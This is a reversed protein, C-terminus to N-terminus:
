RRRDCHVDGYTLSTEESGSKEPRDRLDRMKKKSLAWDRSQPSDGFGLSGLGHRGFEGM